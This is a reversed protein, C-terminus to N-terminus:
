QKLVQNKEDTSSRKLPTPTHTESLNSDNASDENESGVEDVKASDVDLKKHLEKQQSLGKGSTSLLNQAEVDPHIKHIRAYIADAIFYGIAGFIIGGLHAWINVGPSITMAFLIVVAVWTAIGKHEPMFAFLAIHWGEKRDMIAAAAIVGFVAGSAGIGLVMMSGLLPSLAVWFLCAAIGTALYFGLFLWPGWRNALREGFLWLGLMNGTLHMFDAHLFMHTVVQWLLGHLILFPVSGFLVLFLPYLFLPSVLLLLLELAFVAVNLAILIKVIANREDLGLYHLAKHYFQATKEKISM